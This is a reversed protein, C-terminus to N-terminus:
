DRWLPRTLAFFPESLPWRNSPPVIPKFRTSKLRAGGGGYECNHFDVDLLANFWASYQSDSLRSVLLASISWLWAQTPNEIVFYRGTCCCFHMRQEEFQCLANAKEVSLQNTASLCPRGLLHDADRLVPPESAGRKRLGRNVAEGSCPVWHRM